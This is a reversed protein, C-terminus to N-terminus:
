GVVVVSGGSPRSLCEVGEGIVSQSVAGSRANRKKSGSHSRSLITISNKWNSDIDRSSGRNYM